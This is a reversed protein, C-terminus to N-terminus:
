SQRPSLGRPVARHLAGPGPWGWGGARGVSVHDKLADSVTRSLLLCCVACALVHFLTYLLRTQTSAKM